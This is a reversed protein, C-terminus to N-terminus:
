KLELKAITSGENHSVVGRERERQRECARVEACGYPTEQRWRAYLAAGRAAAYIPQVYTALSPELKSGRTPINELAKRLAERAKPAEISEGAVLVVSIPYDSDGPVLKQELGQWYEAESSYNGMKDAGFEPHIAYSEYWTQYGFPALVPYLTTYLAAHSLSVFYVTELPMDELNEDNCALYDRYHKCLNYGNAGFTARTESIVKPLELPIDREHLWSGVGAFELADGIDEYTLGPFLPHTVVVRDFKVPALQAETEEKLQKVLNSLIGVDPTSPLGRRKNFWRKLRNLYTPTEAPATSRRLM